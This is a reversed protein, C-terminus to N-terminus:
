KFGIFSLHEWRCIGDLILLCFLIVINVYVNTYPVTINPKLSECHHLNLHLDEPGHCWPTNHYSVLTESTWAAEM